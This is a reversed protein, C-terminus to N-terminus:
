LKEDEGFAGRVKEIKVVKTFFMTKHYTIDIYAMKLLFVELFTYNTGPM